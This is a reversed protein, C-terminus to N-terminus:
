GRMGEDLLDGGLEAAIVPWCGQCVPSSLPLESRPPSNVAGCVMCECDGIAAAMLVDASLSRFQPAAEPQGALIEDTWRLLAAQLPLEPHLRSVRRAAGALARVPDAEGGRIGAFKVEHARLVRERQGRTTVAIVRAYWRQLLEELEDVGASPRAAGAQPSSSLVDSRGRGLDSAAAGGPAIGAPRAPLWQLRSRLFAGPREVRHPWSSGRARMDADLACKLARPSWATLDLGSDMLADCLAGIHGGGLGHCLSALGAALRQAHLPRPAYRRGRRVPPNSIPRLARRRASPSKKDVHSVRRDRRSPPLACVASDRGGGRSILHWISPKRYRAAAAASGTGRRAEVALGSASLVARVTTVTRPHCGVDAAVTRNTVACHHGTRHDAYRALARAVALAMEPKVHVRRCHELGDTALWAAVAACWGDRSTWMAPTGAGAGDRVIEARRAKRAAARRARARAYAANPSAGAADIRAAGAAAKRGRCAWSTQVDGCDVPPKKSIWDADRSSCEPYASGQSCGQM